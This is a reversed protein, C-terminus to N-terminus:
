CGVATEVSSQSSANAKLVVSMAEGSFPAGADICLRRDTDNGTPGAVMSTLSPSGSAIYTRATGTLPSRIIAITLDDSVTASWPVDLESESLGIDQTVRAPQANRIAEADTSGVQTDKGIIASVKATSGDSTTTITIYRGLLVCKTSGRSDGAGPSVSDVSVSSPDCKLDNGRTNEVNYVLNYQQQMFSQLSKVSDKYRQTNLNTTWGALLLVVLLGSIAVFLMVEIITFGRQKKDIM